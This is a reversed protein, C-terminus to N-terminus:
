VEIKVIQRMLVIGIVLLVVAGALMFEGVHTTYLPRMYAPRFIFELAGVVV